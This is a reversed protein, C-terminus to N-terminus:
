EFRIYEYSISDAFVVAIQVPESTIGRYGWSELMEIMSGSREFNTLIIEVYVGNQCDLIDVCHFQETWTNKFGLLHFYATQWTYGNFGDEFASFPCMIRVGHECGVIDLKSM